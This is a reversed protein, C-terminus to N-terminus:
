RLERKNFDVPQDRETVTIAVYSYGSFQTKVLGQAVTGKAQIVGGGRHQSRLTHGM